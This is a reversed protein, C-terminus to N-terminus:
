AAAAFPATRSIAFFVAMRQTESPTRTFETCGPNTSVGIRSCAFPVSISSPMIQHYRHTPKRPCRLDSGDDGKEGAVVGGEHRTRLHVDIARVQSASTTTLRTRPNPNIPHHPAPATRRHTLCAASEIQASGQYGYCAALYQSPIRPSVAELVGDRHSPAATKCCFHQTPWHKPAQSRARM